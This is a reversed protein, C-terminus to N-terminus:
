GASEDCSCTILELKLQNVTKDKHNATVLNQNPKIVSLQFGSWPSKDHSVCSLLRVHTGSITRERFRVTSVSVETTQKKGVDSLTPKLRCYLVSHDESVDSDRLIARISAEDWPSYSSTQIWMESRLTVYVVRKAAVLLYKKPPRPGQFICELRINWDSLFLMADAM